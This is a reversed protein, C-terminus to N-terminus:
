KILASEWIRGITNNWIGKFIRITSSVPLGTADIGKAITNVTKYDIEQKEIAKAVKILANGIAVISVQDMRPDTYLMKQQHAIVKIADSITGWIDKVIPIKRLPNLEEIFRQLIELFLSEDDDGDYNRIRGWVARLVSEALSGMLYVTAAKKMTAGHKRLASQTGHARREQDFMEAADMLINLGLTPEANFATVMQSYAGPDRMLESKTLISDVVQTAFIVETLRDGVAKYYEESGVKLNTKDRIELECANWLKQWTLEDM